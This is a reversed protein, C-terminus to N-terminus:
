DLEHTSSSMTRHMDGNSQPRLTRSSCIDRKARTSISGTLLKSLLSQISKPDKRGAPMFHITGRGTQEADVRTFM